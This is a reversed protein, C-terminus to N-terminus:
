ITGRLKNEIKHAASVLFHLSTTNQVHSAAAALQQRVSAISIRTM